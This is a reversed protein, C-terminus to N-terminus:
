KQKDGEQELLYDFKNWNISAYIEADAADFAEQDFDPFMGRAFGLERPVARVELEQPEYKVLRLVPKGARAIVIDAGNEVEEILKSFNTKAAHINVQKAM